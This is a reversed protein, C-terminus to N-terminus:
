NLKTKQSNANPKCVGKNAKGDELSASVRVELRQGVQGVIENKRTNPAVKITLTLVAETERIDLM